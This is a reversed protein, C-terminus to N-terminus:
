IRNSEMITEEVDNYEVFHTLEVGGYTAPILVNYNGKGNDVFRQLEKILEVVKM